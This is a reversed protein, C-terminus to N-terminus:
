IVRSSSQQLQSGNYLLVEGNLSNNVGVLACFPGTATSNCSVYNLSNTNSPVSILSWSSGNYSAAQAGGVAVCFTSSICSVSSPSFGSPFSTASWSSGNYILAGSSEIAVCFSTSSCSVDTLQGTGSPLTSPMWNTGNYILAIGLAANSEQTGVAVCFSTSACSVSDLSSATSPLSMSADSWNSGSNTTTYVSATNVSSQGVAFCTTTTPCSVSDFTSMPSLFNQQITWSATAGYAKKSIQTVSQIASTLTSVALLALFGKATMTLNVFSLRKSSTEKSM